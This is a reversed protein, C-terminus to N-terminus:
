IVIDSYIRFKIQFFDLNSHILLLHTELYFYNLKIGQDKM